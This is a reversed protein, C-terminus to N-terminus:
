PRPPTAAGWRKLYEIARAVWGPDDRLMGLGSNCQVCLIGRVRRTRHDHDVHAAPRARCVACVGGQKRIIAEIEALGLGYKQRYHYHRTDGWKRRINRRTRANHCPKCHLGRGDKSLRSRPFQELPRTKGCDPCHKTASM